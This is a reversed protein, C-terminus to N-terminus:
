GSVKWVGGRKIMKRDTSTRAAQKRTSTGTFTYAQGCAYAPICAKCAM